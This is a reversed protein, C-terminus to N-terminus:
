QGCNNFEDNKKPYEVCSNNGDCKKYSTADQGPCATRSYHVACDTTKAQPINSFVAMALFTAAAVILTKMEIEWTRFVGAIHSIHVDINIFINITIVSDNKQL